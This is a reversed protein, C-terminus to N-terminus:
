LMVVNKRIGDNWIRHQEIKDCQWEHDLWTNQVEAGYGIYITPRWSSQKIEVPHMEALFPQTISLEVKESPTTLDTVVQRWQQWVHPLGELLLSYTAIFYQSDRDLSVFAPFPQIANEYKSDLDISDGRAGLESSQLHALPFEKTVSKGVRTFKM